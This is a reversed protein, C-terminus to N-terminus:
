RAQRILEDVLRALEPINRAKGEMKQLISNNRQLQGKRALDQLYALDSAYQQRWDPIKIVEKRWCEGFISRPRM